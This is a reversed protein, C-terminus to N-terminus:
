RIATGDVTVNDYRNNGSTGSIGDGEYEIKFRLNPNNNVETIASLDITILDWEPVDQAEFVDGAEVWTSGADPSYYFQQAGALDSSRTIAFTVILDKYGNSPVEFLLVRGEAPNRVRLVAGQDPEQGLRLNMNSAPDAPRVTRYDLYGEGTGPYSIMGQLGAAAFDAEISAEPDKQDNFHWYYVLESESPATNSNPAGPTLAALLQWNDSGDPFRGYSQNEDMPPFTLNDIVEGDANELWVEEGGSSLGFGSPDDDDTVIVYFGGPPLATGAPIIKKPKSGSQGGNDYIKYGTLNLTLEGKNYLEIWDPNDDTGRSYIENMVIMGPAPPVSNDNATGPTVVELIQWNSDGDPYRGYSQTEELAPFVINDIITGTTNELWVEEGGSSLGFGSEDADDVVIVFWGKAAIITGAPIEKKPKSGSQGGSDYIKFGGINAEFDSANYLEIWDPNDDTGRSYVENMLIVAQPEGSGNSSGPTLTNLLEWNTSGDPNRGYSQNVEMPPFIVNDILNGKANELWVEEGGSSLGFGADGGIDTVIVYFGKAPIIAGDPFALKPKAGSQGGNDYIRYGTLDVDIESDNYIEIWDPDEAVGRSYIENMVILPAGVTYAATNTPAGEPYSAQLGSNNEALIYFNVTVDSDQGPIQATYINNSGSMAVETFSGGDANYFLKVTNVGNLDTVKVSVEVAQNEAPAQPTLVLESIIPPGQFIEDKVCATIIIGLVMMLGIIKKTNM